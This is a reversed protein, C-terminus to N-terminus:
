QPLCTFYVDLIFGPDPLPLKSEEAGVLQAPLECFRGARIKKILGAIETLMAPETM